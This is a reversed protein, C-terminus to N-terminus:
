IYRFYLNSEAANRDPSNEVFEIERTRQAIIASLLEAPLVSSVFEGQSLKLAARLDRPLM